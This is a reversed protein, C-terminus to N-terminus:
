VSVGKLDFAIVATEAALGALSFCSTNPLREVDSGHLVIDPTTTRLGQELRDRLGALRESEAERDRESASLAAAMGAIAAVNETGARVGREQGGGRVLPDIQLAPDRLVIAGAGKPGGFKHASVFLADGPLSAPDCALRGARQVADVVLVGRHGAVLAALASLPQVVGTENNAAQVAVVGVGERGSLLGELAGPDVLGDGDVPLIESDGAAFRHGQLVCAHESAAVILRAAREGGRALGPSLLTAAAESGGATFYVDQSRAGFVRAVTDRAREVVARAARGDAHVSSPNGALDLAAAVADRAEPLLPSTANYDAYVRHRSM